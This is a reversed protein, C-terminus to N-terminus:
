PRPRAERAAYEARTMFRAMRVDRLARLVAAGEEDELDLALQQALVIHQLVRGLAGGLFSRAIDREKSSLAVWVDAQQIADVGLGNVTPTVEREYTTGGVMLEFVMPYKQDTM